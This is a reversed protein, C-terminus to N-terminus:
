QYASVNRVEKISNSTSINESILLDLSRIAEDSNNNVLHKRVEKLRSTDDSIKMYTAENVGMSAKIIERCADLTLGMSGITAAYYSMVFITIFGTTQNSKLQIYTSFFLAFLHFYKARKLLDWVDSFYAKFIETNM